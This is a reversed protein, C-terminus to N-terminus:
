SASSMLLRKKKRVRLAAPTPVPTHRSTLDENMEAAQQLCIKIKRRGKALFRGVNRELLVTVFAM